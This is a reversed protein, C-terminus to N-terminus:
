PNGGPSYTTSPGGASVFAMHELWWGVPDANDDLPDRPDAEGPREWVALAAISAAVYLLQGHDLDALSAVAAHMAADPAYDHEHAASLAALARAIHDATNM